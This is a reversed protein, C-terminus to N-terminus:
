RTKSTYDLEPQKIFYIGATLLASLMYLALIIYNFLTLSNILVLLSFIFGSLLVACIMMFKTKQSISFTLIATITLIVFLGVLVPITLIMEIQEPKIPLPTTGNVLAESQSPSFDIDSTNGLLFLGFNIAIIAFSITSIILTPFYKMNFSSLDKNQQASNDDGPKGFIIMLLTLTMSSTLELWTWKIRMFFRRVLTQQELRRMLLDDKNSNNLVFGALRDFLERTRGHDSIRLLTILTETLRKFAYPQDKNILYFDPPLNIATASSEHLVIVHTDHGHFRSNQIFFDLVERGSYKPLTTDVIVIQPSTIYVYGLGEVGNDTSFTNIDVLYKKALRSLFIKIIQRIAFNDDILVINHHM